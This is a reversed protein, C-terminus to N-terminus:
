SQATAAGAILDARPPLLGLQHFFGYAEILVWDEAILDDEVRHIVMMEVHIHRHTPAIGMWSEQHTGTMTCHTAIRDGDAVQQRVDIRIDPFAQFWAAVHHRIAAPGRAVPPADSGSQLQHTRCDPHILTEALELERANWLREFFARVVSLADSM